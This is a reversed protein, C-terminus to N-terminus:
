RFQKRYADVMEAVDNPVSESRRAMIIQKGDLGTCVLKPEAAERHCPIVAGAGKTEGKPLLPRVQLTDGDLTATVPWGVIARPAPKGDDVGDVRRPASASGAMMGYGDALFYMEAQEATGEFLSAGTAWTGAIHAPLGEAAHAATHLSSCLVVLKLWSTRM